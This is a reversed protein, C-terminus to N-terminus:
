HHTVLVALACVLAVTLYAGALTVFAWWLLSRAREGM